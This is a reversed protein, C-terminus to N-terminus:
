TNLIVDKLKAMDNEKCVYKQCKERKVLKCNENVHVNFNLIIELPCHDSEPVQSLVKFHSIHELGNKNCIM